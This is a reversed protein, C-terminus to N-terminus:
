GAVLEASWTRCINNEVWAQVLEQKVNPCTTQSNDIYIVAPLCLLVSM